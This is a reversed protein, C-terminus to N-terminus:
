RTSFLELAAVAAAGAEKFETGIKGWNPIGLFEKSTTSLVEDPATIGFVKTTQKRNGCHFRGSFENNFLYYTAGELRLLTMLSDNLSKAAGASSGHHMLILGGRDCKHQEQFAKIYGLADQIRTTWDKKKDIAFKKHDLYSPSSATGDLAFCYVSDSALRIGIAAM